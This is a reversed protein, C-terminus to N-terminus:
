RLRRSLEGSSIRDGESGAPVDEQAHRSDNGSFGRERFKFVCPLTVDQEVDAALISPLIAQLTDTVAIGRDLLSTSM